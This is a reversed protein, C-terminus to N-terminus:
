KDLSDMLSIMQKGFQHSDHDIHSDRAKSKRAKGDLRNAVNTTM